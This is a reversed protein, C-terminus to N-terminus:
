VLRSLPNLFIRVRTFRAQYVLTTFLTLACVLFNGRLFPSLSSLFFPIFVSVGKTKWIVQANTNLGLNHMIWRIVPEDKPKM